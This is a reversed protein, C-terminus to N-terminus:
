KKAGIRGETGAKLRQINARHRWFVILTMAATVAAVVPLGLLLASIPVALTAVLAALSSYRSAFATALWAVAFILALWLSLGFLVGIYTAVGKGGRFRLWVPYCHGVFASLGAIAAPLIGFPMFVLVPLTAKLVDCLLTLFAMTKNGTRLANTAGINGSGIKRIDGLGFLRAFLLGYPISGSLYGFLAAAAWLVPDATAEM